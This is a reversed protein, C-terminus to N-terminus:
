HICYLDRCGSDVSIKERDDSDTKKDNDGNDDHNPGPIDDEDQVEEVSARHDVKNPEKGDSRTQDPINSSCPSDEQENVQRKENNNISSRGIEQDDQQSPSSTMKNEPAPIDMSDGRQRKSARMDAQNTLNRKMGNRAQMDPKPKGKRGEEGEFRHETLPSNTRMPWRYERSVKVTKKVADYYKIARPGEEYGIFTQRKAREDLKSPNQEQNLIWVPCGFEQIFSIDPHKGSWKEYPTKDPVARTYARNRIYTAHSMAEPWLENPVNRAFIMSRALEVVTKNWREAVGNQEPTYPATTQIEIGRDLCWTRLDKNIYERGNDARIAKPVFSNQREILVLYQKVKTPTEDKTKMFSITCHRTADDIFSVYYRYGHLSSVRAPGWVDTHTLEGPKRERSTRTNPVSKRETKVKICAKCEFDQPSDRLSFGDVLNKGHLSRLGSIAIHGLRRHWEEWTWAGKITIAISAENQPMTRRDLYYLGDKLTAIALPKDKSDRLSMQGSNCIVRGGASDIRGVSILNQRAEPVYLVRTLHLMYQEDNVCTRLLITGQGRAVVPKNGLGKVVKHPTSQYTAFSKLNACIHTTAGSNIIWSYASLDAQTAKSM